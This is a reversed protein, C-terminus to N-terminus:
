DAPPLGPNIWEHTEIIWVPVPRGQADRSPDYRYRETILRCTTEDLARSGSSHTVTCDRVRGDTWVMFKIAVTGGQGADAADRPYDSDKLRGKRWRPPTEDGGDGDGDGYGGSGTGDGIGGAGTSPGAVPAAGQSAQNGQFPKPAAIIPPPIQLPVVPTPAVVPTAKSRINPPAARGEKRTSPRPREVTREPPPPPPPPVVFTKLAEPLVGAITGGALGSLLAWGMAATVLAAAVASGYRSTNPAAYM